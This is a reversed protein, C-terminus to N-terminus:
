NQMTSVLKSVEGLYPLVAIGVEIGKETIFKLVNGIKNLIKIRDKSETATKVASLKDELEEKEDNNLINDLNSINKIAQNFSIEIINTSSANASATNNNQNNITTISQQLKLKELDDQIHQENLEIESKYNTLIAKLIILDNVPNPNADSYTYSSLRFTINPIESEYVSVILDILKDANKIDKSNITEDCDLIYGNIIDIKGM